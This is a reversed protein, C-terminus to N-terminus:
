GRSKGLTSRLNSKECNKEGNDLTDWIIKRMERDTKTEPETLPNQMVSKLWDTERRTLVLTVELTYIYKAKM